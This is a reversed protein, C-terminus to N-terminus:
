KLGAEEKLLLPRALGDLRKASTKGLVVALMPFLGKASGADGLAMTSTTISRQVVVFPVFHEDVEKKEGLGTSTKESLCSKNRTGKCM